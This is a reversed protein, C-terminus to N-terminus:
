QKDNDLFNYFILEQFLFNQTQFFFQLDRYGEKSGNSTMFAHGIHAAFDVALGISLLILVASIANITVGWFYTFGVVNVQFVVTETKTHLRAM